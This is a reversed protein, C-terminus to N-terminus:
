KFDLSFAPVYQVIQSSAEAIAPSYMVRALTLALQIVADSPILGKIIAESISQMESDVLPYLSSWRGNPLSLLHIKKKM